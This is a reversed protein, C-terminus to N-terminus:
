MLAYRNGHVNVSYFDAVALVRFCASPLISFYAAPLTCVLFVHVTSCLLMLLGFHVSCVIALVHMSVSSSVM